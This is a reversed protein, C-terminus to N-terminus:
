VGSVALREGQSSDDHGLGKKLAQLQRGYV